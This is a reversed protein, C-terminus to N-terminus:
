YEAAIAAGIAADVYEKTAAEDPLFKADLKKLVPFCDIDPITISVVRDTDSNKLFYIGSETINNEELWANYPDYKASNYEDFGHDVFYVYNNLALVGSSEEVETPAGTFTNLAGNEYYTITPMLEYYNINNYPWDYVKYFNNDKGICLLNDVRGDWTLTDSGCDSEYHSRNQIYGPKGANNQAWDPSHLNVTSIKSTYFGTYGNVIFSCQQGADHPEMWIGAKPFTYFLFKVNPDRVIYVTFLKGFKKLSFWHNDGDGFNIWSTTYEPTVYDTNDVVIPAYHWKGSRDVFGLTVGKALDDESPLIDSVFCIGRGEEASGNYRFLYDSSDGDWLLTDSGTNNVSLGVLKEKEENTFDNSSLGKGDEKDVKTRLNNTVWLKLDNRLQVLAEIITM